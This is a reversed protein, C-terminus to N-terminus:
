MTGEVPLAGPALLNLRRFEACGHFGWLVEWARGWNQSIPRAVVM